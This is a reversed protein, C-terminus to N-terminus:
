GIEKEMEATKKLRVELYSEQDDVEVLKMTIKGEEELQQLVPMRLGVVRKDYYRAYDYVRLDELLQDAYNM